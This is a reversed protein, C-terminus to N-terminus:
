HERTGTENCRSLYVIGTEDTINGDIKHSRDYSWRISAWLEMAVPLFAQIFFSTYVIYAGAQSPIQSVEPYCTFRVTGTGMGAISLFALVLTVFLVIIDRKEFRYLVFSSRNKTGYGRAKMSAATDMANEMAWGTLASFTRAAARLRNWMGSEVHIGMGKQAEEIRKGQRIFLPLFRLSMTLLMATQPVKGALYMWKDATIIEGLCQCWLMVSVLVAGATLGYVFAELTVPRGRMFFLPTAGAHSFLPNTVAVVIWVLIYIGLFRALKRGNQLMYLYCCGSLVGQMAIVPNFNFILILLLSLFYVASVAPHLTASIKM